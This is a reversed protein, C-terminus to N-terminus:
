KWLLVLCQAMYYLVSDAVEGRGGLFFSLYTLVVGSLLMVVASAEGM